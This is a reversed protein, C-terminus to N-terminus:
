NASAKPLFDMAAFWALAYMSMYLSMSLWVPTDFSYTGSSSIESSRCCSTRCPRCPCCTLVAAIM